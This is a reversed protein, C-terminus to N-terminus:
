RPTKAGLLNKVFEYTSWSIAMSPAHVLLRARLGRSFARLGEEAYIKRAADVLGTYAPRQPPGPGAGPGVTTGFQLAARALQSPGQMQAHVRTTAAASPTAVPGSGSAAGAGAGSAAGRSTGAGTSASVSASGSSPAVPARGGGGGGAENNADIRQTQLRTKVVDLPNTVAAAVAGAGAGSLLYSKMDHEGSPNLWEKLSENTAVVTAAYPFNMVVTTPYSRYFAIPGENRLVTRVCDAVGTHHGLQLRQKVVDMPTLVADHLTTAMAGAAAAAIPHHGPRNAGLREKAAEYVTFYAAHSPICAAAMGPAGRWMGLMGRSKVLRKLSERQAAKSGGRVHIAQMHTKITDFPFMAVHEMVGACSGATAHVMFSDQGRDWEEWDEDIVDRSDM